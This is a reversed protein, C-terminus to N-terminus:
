RAGPPRGAGPQATAQLKEYVRGPPTGAKVLAAARALEEDVVARFKEIPQAGLLRRGNVFFTPTGIVGLEAALDRDAAIIQGHKKGAIAAQVKSTDLKLARAHDLLDADELRSQNVMWTGGGDMCAQRDRAAAGVCQRAYLLDHAAWFGADGRQARAELALEAAPEARPHFALPDHKFVLRVKDRHETQLQELTAAVKGCYECQFDGMEVITVLASAKGRVPSSGVPVRWM